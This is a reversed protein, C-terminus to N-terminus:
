RGSACVLTEFLEVTVSGGDQSRCDASDFRFGEDESGGFSM